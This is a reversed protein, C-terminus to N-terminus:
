FHFTAGLTPGTLRVKNFLIQNDTTRYELNRVGLTIDGWNFHYGGGLFGEWQWNKNGDGGDLLYPLYWRGDSSLNLRGKVGILGITSDRVPWFGGGLVNPVPPEILSIEYSLSLRVSTYRLGAMVDLNGVENHVVTYTPAVTWIAMRMGVEISRNVMAAPEGNPPAITRTNSTNNELNLYVFDTWLGWDGKQIAGDFLFPIKIYKVYESPQIEPTTTGGGAIAPLNVTPYIWPVWGYVNVDFHWEGDWKNSDAVAIVDQASVRASTLVGLSLIFAALGLKM